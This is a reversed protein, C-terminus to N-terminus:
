GIQRTQVAIMEVGVDRVLLKMPESVGYRIARAVKSPRSWKPVLSKSAETFGTRYYELYCLAIIV